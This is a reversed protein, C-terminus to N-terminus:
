QPQKGSEIIELLLIALHETELDFAFEEIRGLNLEEKKLATGLLKSAMLIQSELPKNITEANEPASATKRDDDNGPLQGIAPLSCVLCLMIAPPLQAFEGWRSRLSPNRSQEELKTIFM